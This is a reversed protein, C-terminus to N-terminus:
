HAAPPTYATFEGLRCIEHTQMVEISQANSCVEDMHNVFVFGHMELGRCPAQLTNKWIKGDRMFFLITKADVVQTHDISGHPNDYPRICVPAAKAPPPATQAQAALAPLGLVLGCLAFIKM